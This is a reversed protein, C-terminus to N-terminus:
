SALLKTLKVSAKGTECGTKHPMREGAGKM